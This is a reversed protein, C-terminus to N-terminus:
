DQYHIDIESWDIRNDVSLIMENIVSLAKKQQDWTLMKVGEEFRVWRYSEHEESLHVEALGVEVGFVPVLNMRDNYSQYFSTVHDATFAFLPRLGTEENVERLLTEVATEGEEMQGAVGQWLHGYRKDPRRKLLLFVLHGDEDRRYLYSDIHTVSAETMQHLCLPCHRRPGVTLIM